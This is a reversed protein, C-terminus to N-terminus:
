TYMGTKKCACQTMYTSNEIFVSHLLLLSHEWSQSNTIHTHQGFTHNILVNM